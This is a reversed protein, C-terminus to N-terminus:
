KEGGWDKEEEYFKEDITLKRTMKILMKVFILFKVKKEIIKWM